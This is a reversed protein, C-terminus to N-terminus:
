DPTERLRGEARERSRYGHSPLTGLDFHIRGMTETDVVIVNSEVAAAVDPKGVVLRVPAADSSASAAAAGPDSAAEAAMRRSPFRAPMTSLNTLHGTPSRLLSLARLPGDPEVTLQWKGNGDGLMGSLGAAAGSELETSTFTSAGRPPVSLRVTSGPSAGDADVGTIAVGRVDDGPNVLRLMSVQRTNSAPNFTPVHIGGEGRHFADHMSTLFGDETRIYGTVQLELDSELELWWHGVGPGTGVPLGKAANGQELDRSNFHVTAGPGIALAVPGRRAGSDDYAVVMAEGAEDSHNAVRAFGELFPDSAAPFMSLQHRPGGDEYPQTSLNTVHGTPSRLLSVAQVPQRSAVSLRWKGAGDGLAGALGEGGAELDRASVERAGGAPVTLRVSEGPSLGHDDIGAIAVEAATRGPNVLRLVSQQRDNSGPNFTPVRIAQADRHAVDHMRTLFGAGTRVYALVDVDLASSFELRWSGEGEGVGTGLGKEANGRELDTSNFFATARADLPLALPGHATGDDDFARVEVEGPEDGRNTVQVFGQWDPHSAAPFFPVTHSLPGIVVRHGSAAVLVRVDRGNLSLTDGSAFRERGSACDSGDRDGDADVCVYDDGGSFVGDRDLDGAVVAVRAGGAVAVDGHWTSRPIAASLYPEGDATFGFVLWLTYPVVAGSRYEVDLVAFVDSFAEGGISAPPGDDTLDFNGNRDFHLRAARGGFDDAMFHVPPHRGDGLRIEGFTQSRGQATPYRVHGAAPRPFSINPVNSWGGDPTDARFRLFPNGPTGISPAPDFADLRGDGDDDRDANDGIGDGDTDRWEGPYLRFADQADAVGDGDDDGDAWDGRGDGDSDAAESPDLPFADLRDPTGDGDDDDDDRDGIGDRDTDVSEDPDLPVGDEDDRVGDGDDDEDRNNGIGDGDTDVHESGDNPFEDLADPVSDSDADPRAQLGDISRRGGDLRFVGRGGTAYVDGRVHDFAVRHDRTDKLSGSGYIRTWDGRGDRLFGDQFRGLVFLQGHDLANLVTESWWDGADPPRPSETWTSGRDTSSYLLGPSDALGWFARGDWAMSRVPGDKPALVARWDGGHTSGVQRVAGLSGLFLFGEAADGVLPGTNVIRLQDPQAFGLSTWSEGLDRSAYVDATTALFIRGHRDAATAAAHPVGDVAVPAFTAGRDTSRYLAHEAADPRLHTAFLASGAADLDSIPLGLRSVPQFNVGRDISRWLRATGGPPQRALWLAGDRDAALGVAHDMTSVRTLHAHEPEDPLGTGHALWDLADADAVEGGACHGGEGALDGKTELGVTYRYYGYADLSAQHLFDGTTAQVFVRFRDAFERSPKWLPDPGNHCGCGAFLGGGYHEGYRPVFDNLFCTGQSGGWLFVRGRDVRFRGDFDTQLLRHILREDAPFWHRVIGGASGREGSSAVVVPVLDLRGAHRQTNPFFWELVQQRSGMNNGHFFVLVGQPADPDSGEPLEYRYLVERGHSDAFSATVPEAGARPSALWCVLAALKLSRVAMGRVRADMRTM